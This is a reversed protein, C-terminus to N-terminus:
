YKQESKKAFKILFLYGVNKKKTTTQMSIKVKKKIQIIKYSICSVAIKNIVTM